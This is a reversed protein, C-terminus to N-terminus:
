IVALAMLDRHLLMVLLPEKQLLFNPEGFPQKIYPANARKLTVFHDM